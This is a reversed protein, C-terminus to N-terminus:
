DVKLAELHVQLVNYARQRREIDDAEYYLDHLQTESEGDCVIKANINHCNDPIKVVLIVKAM